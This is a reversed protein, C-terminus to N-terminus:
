LLGKYILSKMKYNLEAMDVSKSLYAEIVDKSQASTLYGYFKKLAAMM